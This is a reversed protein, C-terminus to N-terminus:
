KHRLLYLKSWTLFSHLSMFVAMITGPVGDLFGLRLIYNHVFKAPPLFALHLLSSARGQSNRYEAELTSYHNIKTLLKRISPLQHYLPNQLEGVRGEGVWVEHVPRQWLGWDRRALRVFRNAANEGHNLQRGLFTDLRRLRYAPYPSAKASVIAQIEKKLSASLQEDQDLFLAWDTQVKQLARNRAAAYDTIDPENLTIITLNKM